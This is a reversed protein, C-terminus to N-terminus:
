AEMRYKFNQTVVSSPRAVITQAETREAVCWPPSVVSRCLEAVNQQAGQRQESDYVSLRTWRFETVTKIHVYIYIYICDIFNSVNM